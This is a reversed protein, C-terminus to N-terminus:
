LLVSFDWVLYKCTNTVCGLMELASEKGSITKREESWFNFNGSLKEEKSGDKQQDKKKKKLIGM